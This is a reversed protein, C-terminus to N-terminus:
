AAAWADDAKKLAKSDNQGGSHWASISSRLSLEIAREVSSPIVVNAGAPLPPDGCKGSVVEAFMNEFLRQDGM